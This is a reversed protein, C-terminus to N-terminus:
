EESGAGRAASWDNENLVHRVAGVLVRLKSLTEPDLDDRAHIEVGPAIEWRRWEQANPEPQPPHETGNQSEGLRTRIEGLSLNFERLACIQQLRELHKQTYYAARGRGYPPPLLRESVYYRIRRPPVGTKEALQSITIADPVDELRALGNGLAGGQKLSLDNRRSDNWM